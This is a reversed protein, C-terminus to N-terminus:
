CYYSLIITQLVRAIIIHNIFTGTVIIQPGATTFLEEWSLPMAKVCENM